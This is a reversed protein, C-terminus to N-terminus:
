NFLKWKTDIQKKLKRLLNIKRVETGFLILTYIGIGLLIIDEYAQLFFAKVGTLGWLTLLVLSILNKKPYGLWIIVGICVIPCPMIYTLMEPFTKGQVISVLPYIAVLFILCWQVRSLSKFVEDKNKYAEYLFTIGLVLYLPFAFFFQIPQTGFILFFVIAMYICTCGYVVKPLWSLKEKRALIIAIIICSLIIGQLFITASNYNAIVHWFAESSM